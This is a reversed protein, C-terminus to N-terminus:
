GSSSNKKKEALWLKFPLPKEKLKFKEYRYTNYEQYALSDAIFDREEPAAQPREEARWVEVRPKHKKHKKRRSIFTFAGEEREEGRERSMLEKEPNTNAWSKSFLKAGKHELGYYRNKGIRRM